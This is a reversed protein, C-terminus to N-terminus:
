LRNILDRLVVYEVRRSQYLLEPYEKRVNNEFDIETRIMILETITKESSLRTLNNLEKIADPSYIYGKKVTDAIELEFEFGPYAILKDIIPNLLQHTYVCNEVEGNSVSSNAIHIRDLFEPSARNLLHEVFAVIKDHYDDYDVDTMLPLKIDYNQVVVGTKWFIDSLKQQIEPPEDILCDRSFVINGSESFYAELKNLM